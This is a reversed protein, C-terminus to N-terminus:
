LSWSYYPWPGAGSRGPPIEVFGDSSAAGAVDGSSRTQILEAAGPSTLMVLRHRWLNLTNADDNVLQILSPQRPSRMGARRALAPAVLRRATVLVSLPNGPLGFVPKGGIAAGLAPKGPRQSLRHFVVEAGIREIVAPVHDHDGMSVGGTCILADCGVLSETAAALITEANDAIRQPEDLEIWPQSGFMARLASTHSDRLSWDDPSEAPDVVESGTVIIAVRVRRHVAPATIGFTALSAALAPTIRRGGDCVSEDQALNEGRRRINLGPTAQAIVGPSLTIRGPSEGVHERQVVADAGPPIPAGTVIKLSAGAPLEPPAKGIFVEGAVPLAGPALDAIRLAYGDMASVDCAPSPRDARVDQALVRGLSAELSCREAGVPEVRELLAELAAQPSDFQLAPLAM